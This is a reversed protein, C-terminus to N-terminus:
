FTFGIGLSFPYLEPGKNKKFLRTFSYNTYIYFPQYGIRLTGEIKYPALNYDDRLIFKNDHKDIQKIKSKLKISGIAGASFRLKSKGLPYQYEFILPITLYTIALKERKFNNITDLAFKIPTSDKLFIVQKDFSYNKFSLGLGIVIGFKNKYLGYSKKLMNWNIEWSSYTKLDILKAEEPLTLSHNNNLYNNFGFEIGTWNGKFSNKKKLYDFTTDHNETRTITRHIPNRIILIERNKFDVVSTDPQIVRKINISDKKTTVNNQSYAISAIYAIIAFTLIIKNM